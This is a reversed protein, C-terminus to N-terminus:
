HSSAHDTTEAWRASRKVIWLWLIIWILAACTGLVGIPGGYSASGVGVLGGAIVYGVWTARLASRRPMSAAHRVTM